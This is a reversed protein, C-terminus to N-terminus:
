LGGFRNFYALTWAQGGNGASAAVTIYNHGPQLQPWVSSSDVASLLNTLAGTAKDVNLARKFNKVSSLKFYKVGDSTMPNILFTQAVTPSKVVITLPGTYTAKAPTQDVRLEFGSSVTGLYVFDLETGGEDVTGYYITADPEIFDPKPCIISIQIEPDESFINPEFSEVYGEIDVVPLEDSYFRLKVWARPLFYAYLLQRLSSMTQDVWNPNLGLTLVINRKGISAGQYLEGDSTALPSTVIEAKVPGLGDVNRIQVPDDNPLFGGLPLEPASPQASFAEIKTIM